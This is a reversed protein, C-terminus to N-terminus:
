FIRLPDQRDKSATELQISSSSCVLLLKETMCKWNFWKRVLERPRQRVSLRWCMTIELERAQNFVAACGM